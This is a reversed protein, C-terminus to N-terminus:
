SAPRAKPRQTKKSGRRVVVRPSKNSSPARHRWGQVEHAEIRRLLEPLAYRVHHRMERDAREPDRSAIADVLDLHFHRPLRRGPAAVMYLWNLMLVQRNEIEERLGRCAAFDAIRIHLDFHQRHVTFMFEADDETDFSRDYLFDVQEAMRRLEHLQALTAREAVLRASQSELAERIVYQDEVDQRTPIRVRTGARQRTEVLGERELRQLAESVPLLSMKLRQALDRRSLPAGLPLEGRLIFERIAFYARESLSETMGSMSISSTDHMVVSRLNDAHVDFTLPYLFPGLRNGAYAPFRFCQLPLSLLSEGSTRNGFGSM